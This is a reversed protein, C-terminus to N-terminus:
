LEFQFISSLVFIEVFCPQALNFVGLWSLKIKGQRESKKWFAKGCLNWFNRMKKESCCSQRFQREDKLFISWCCRKATPQDNTQKQTWLSLIHMGSHVLTHLRPTSRINMSYYYWGLGICCVCFILMINWSSVTHLDYFYTESAKASLNNLKLKWNRHLPM